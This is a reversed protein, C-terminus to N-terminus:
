NWPENRTSSSPIQLSLRFWLSGIYTPFGLGSISRAHSENSM